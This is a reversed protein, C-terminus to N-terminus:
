EMQDLFYNANVKDEIGILHKIFEIKQPQGLECFQEKAQNHQGNIRSELIMNYYESINTFGYPKLLETNQKRLDIM